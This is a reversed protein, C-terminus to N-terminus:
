RAEEHLNANIVTNHWREKSHTIDLGLFDKPTEFKSDFHERLKTQLHQVAKPQGTILADDVYLPLM